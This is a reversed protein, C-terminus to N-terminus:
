KAANALDFQYRIITQLHPWNQLHEFGTIAITLEKATQSAAQATARQLLRRPQRKNYDFPYLPNGCHTCALEAHRSALRSQATNVAQRHPASQAFPQQMAMIPVGRQQCLASTM